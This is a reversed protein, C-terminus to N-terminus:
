PRKELKRLKPLMETLRDYLAQAEGIPDETGGAAVDIAFSLAWRMTEVEPISLDIAYRKPRKLTKPKKM